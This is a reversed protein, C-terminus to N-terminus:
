QKELNLEYIIRCNDQRTIERTGRWQNERVEQLRVIMKGASLATVTDAQAVLEIANGSYGGKYVRVIEQNSMAEAIVQNDAITLQWQESKTDGVASEPCTTETCRMAVNYLGPLGPHLRELTDRMTRTSISDILKEKRLLEEEKLALWQRRHELQREMSDLQAAKEAIIKEREDTKCASFSFILIASLVSLYKMKSILNLM